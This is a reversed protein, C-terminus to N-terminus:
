LPGLRVEVGEEALSEVERFGKPLIELTTKWGTLDLSMLGARLATALGRSKVRCCSAVGVERLSMLFDRIGKDSSSSLKM